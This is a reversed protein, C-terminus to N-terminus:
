EHNRRVEYLNSYKESVRLELSMNRFMTVTMEKGLCGNTLPFDTLQGGLRYVLLGDQYDPLRQIKILCRKKRSFWIKKYKLEVNIALPIYLAEEKRNKYIDLNKGSQECSFVQIKAPLYEEMESKKILFSRDQSAFVSEKVLFAKFGHFQYEQQELLEEGHGNIEAAVDKGFGRDMKGSSLILLFCNGKQYNWNLVYNGSKKRYILEEINYSAKANKLEIM